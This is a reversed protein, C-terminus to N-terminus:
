VPLGFVESRYRGIIREWAFNQEIYSKGAEGM